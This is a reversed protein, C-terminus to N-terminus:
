RMPAVAVPAGGAHDPDRGGLRHRGPRHDGPRFELADAAQLRRGTEQRLKALFDDDGYFRSGLRSLGNSMPFVGFNSESLVIQAPEGGSPREVTEEELFGDAHVAPRLGAGARAAGGAFCSGPEILAILSRSTVDLRKLV